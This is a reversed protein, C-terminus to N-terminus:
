VETGPPRQTEQVKPQWRRILGQAESMQEPTLHADLYKRVGVANPHIQGEIRRASLHLWLYALVNNRPLGSGAFYALGVAIQAVANGQMAAKYYWKVSEAQDKEVGLGIAYSIALKMQAAVSGGKAAKHFWYAAEPQNEPGIEKENIGYGSGNMMGLYYQGEADGQEAAKRYWKVAEVNSKRVDYGHLYKRGLKVQAKADGRAASSRIAELRNQQPRAGIGTTQATAQGWVATGAALWCAFVCIWPFKRDSIGTNCNM